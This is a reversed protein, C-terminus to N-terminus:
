STTANESASAEPSARHAALECRMFLVEATSETEVDVFGLQRYVALAPPNDRYVRLTVARAGTARVAQAMLLSCLSKARGRGREDPAIIIRGLHVAGATLVWFQGFGLLKGDDQSLCYSSGGPVTLLAPLEAAAFPFRLVPGAWRACATADTIWAALADYDTALPLRLIPHM